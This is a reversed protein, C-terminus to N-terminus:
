MLKMVRGSYDKKIERKNPDPCALRYIDDFVMDKEFFELEKRGLIKHADRLNVIVPLKSNEKMENLLKEADKRFGLVKIYPVYGNQRWFSAYDKEIGLLIHILMRQIKTRTYRKTKIFDIKEEIDWPSAIIRNELGETVDEMSEIGEKGLNRIRFNIYPEFDKLFIPGEGNKILGDYFESLDKGLIPEASKGEAYIKRIAAASPFIETEDVSNYGSGERKITFPVISSKLKILAKLYEAGLINNPEDLIKGNFGAEELAKQRAAPFSLGEKLHKKLSEKYSDPENALFGAIPKLEEVNGSESGFSIFDVIGTDSLLKVGAFAFFEATSSSFLTPIEMVMDAGHKLAAEARAYKDFVAPEGRQVFNGSMAVIVFDANLREKTEKIHYEHGKHFPNYEAIIGAIKM